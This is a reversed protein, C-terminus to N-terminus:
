KNNHCHISDGTEYLDASMSASLNDWTPLIVNGSEDKSNEANGMPIGETVNTILVEWNSTVKTTGKIDLRSQFAAYGTAMLLLIGLLSLMIMQRRKRERHM